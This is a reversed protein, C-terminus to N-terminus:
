SSIGRTSLLAPTVPALRLVSHGTIGREALALGIPRQTVPSLYVLMRSRQTVLQLELVPRGDSSGRVLRASGPSQALDAIQSGLLRPCGALELEFRRLWIPELRDGTGLVDLDSPRLTVVTALRGSGLRLVTGRTASGKSGRFWTQVCTAHVPRGRGIAFTSEVLRYRDLWGAAHAAILKGRGPSPLAGAQVGWGAGVIVAGTLCAILLTVVGARV